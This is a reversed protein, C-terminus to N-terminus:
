SVYIVADEKRQRQQRNKEKRIPIEKMQGTEPDTDEVWAEWGMIATHPHNFSGMIRVRKIETDKTKDNIKFWNGSSKSKPEEYGEPMFGEGGDLDSM